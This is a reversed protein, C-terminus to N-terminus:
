RARRAWAYKVIMRIVKDDVSRGRTELHDVIEAGMVIWHEILAGDKNLVVLSLNRQEGSELWTTTKPMPRTPMEFAINTWVPTPQPVLVKKRGEMKEIVPFHFQPRDAHYLIQREETEGIVLFTNLVPALQVGIQM